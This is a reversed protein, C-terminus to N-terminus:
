NKFPKKYEKFYEKRIKKCCDKCYIQLGDKKKKEKWFESINKELKCKSCIKSEM